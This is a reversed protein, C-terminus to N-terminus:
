KPEPKGCETCYPRQNVTGCVCTWTANKQSLVDMPIQQARKREFHDPSSFLYHQCPHVTLIRPPFMAKIEWLQKAYHAYTDSNRDDIRVGRNLTICIEGYWPLAVGFTMRFEYLDRYRPPVYRKLYGDGDTDFVEERLVAIRDECWKIQMLEILDSTVDWVDHLGTMFVLGHEHDICFKEDAGFVRDARFQETKKRNEERYAMYARMEAVTLNQLFPSCNEACTRCLVGDQLPLEEHFNIESGCIACIKMM